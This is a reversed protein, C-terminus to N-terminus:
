KSTENIQSKIQYMEPRYDAIALKVAESLIERQVGDNLKCLTEQNKNNISLGEGPFSTNLNTLIIPDPYKVYRIKYNKISYPNILEVIQYNLGESGFDLRTVRNEYPTKFPNPLERNIEDHTSPIVGILKSKSIFNNKDIIINAKEQIIIFVDKPIKFFKSNESVGYDKFNNNITNNFTSIYPKILQSLDNRRKSSNEFGDQYKNGKPNFYKKVIAEQATTLYVSKEYLDIDPAANTAISNFLIDFENSFETSTM